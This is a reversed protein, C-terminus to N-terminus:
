YEHMGVLGIPIVKTVGKIAPHTILAQLLALKRGPNLHLHDCFIPSVNIIRFSHM